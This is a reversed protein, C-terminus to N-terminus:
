DPAGRRAAGLGHRCRPFRILVLVALSILPSPRWWEAAFRNPKPRSRVLLPLTVFSGLAMAAALYPTYWDAGQIGYWKFWLRIYNLGAALILLASCDIALVALTRTRDVRGAIMACVGVALALRVGHIHVQADIGALAYGALGCLLLYM